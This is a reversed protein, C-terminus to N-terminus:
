KSPKPRKAPPHNHVTMDGSTAQGVKGHITVTYKAGRETVEAGVLAGLAAHKVAPTARRYQSLLVEEEPSLAPAPEYDRAGTVIYLM